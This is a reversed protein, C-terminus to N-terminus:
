IFTVNPIQANLKKEYFILFALLASFLGKSNLQILSSYFSMITRKYSHWILVFEGEIRLSEDFQVVGENQFKIRYIWFDGVPNELFCSFMESFYALILLYFGLDSRLWIAIIAIVVLLEILTFCNLMSKAKPMTSSRNKMVFVKRISHFQYFLAILPLFLSFFRSRAM